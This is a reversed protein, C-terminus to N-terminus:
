AIEIAKQYYGQLRHMTVGIASKSIGLINSIQSYSCGNAVLKLINKQKETLTKLFEKQSKSLTKREEIGNNKLIFNKYAQIETKYENGEIAEVKNAIDRKIYWYYKKSIFKILQKKDYKNYMNIKKSYIFMIADSQLDELAEISINKTKAEKQRKSLDEVVEIGHQEAEKKNVGINYTKIYEGNCANINRFNKNNYDSTKANIIKITKIVLKKVYEMNYKINNNSRTYNMNSKIIKIYLNRKVIEKKNKNNREIVKKTIYEEYENRSMENGNVIIKKSEM